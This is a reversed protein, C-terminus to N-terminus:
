KPFAHVCRAIEAILNPNKEAANGVVILDAGAKLAMEALLSNKIGGGVIIPLEINQRVQEILNAPVPSDAGSGAELFILKLGLMEGAMATCVAIQPKDAPIPLTNSMYQVTTVRGGSILIYGTPIIELGSNRLYPAAEVHRGILMEPNRGSILSLFLLADAQANMQLTSGPFIVKPIDTESSLVDLCLSLADNSLLSGGIFFYDIKAEMSLRAINKFHQKDSKDPDILISLQKKGEDKKQLIRQYINM